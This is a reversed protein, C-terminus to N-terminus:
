ISLLNFMNSPVDDNTGISSSGTARKRQTSRTNSSTTITSHRHQHCLHSVRKVIDNICLDDSVHIQRMSHIQKENTNSCCLAYIEPWCSNLDAFHSFDFYQPVTKMRLPKTSVLCLTQALNETASVISIWRSQISFAHSPFYWTKLRLAKDDKYYISVVLALIESESIKTNGMLLHTLMEILVNVRFTEEEKVHESLTKILRKLNEDFDDDNQYMPTIKHRVFSGDSGQWEPVKMMPTSASSLLSPFLLGYRLRRIKLSAHHPQSDNSVLVYLYTPRALAQTTDSSLLNIM